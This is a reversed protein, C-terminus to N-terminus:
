KKRLRSVFFGEYEENPCISLTISQSLIKRIGFDKQIPVVEVFEKVKNIIEENEEKLISCTSYIIESGPKILNIAKRLL